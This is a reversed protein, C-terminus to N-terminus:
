KSFPKRIMDLIFENLLYRTLVTTSDHSLKFRNRFIAWINISSVRPTGKNINYEGL